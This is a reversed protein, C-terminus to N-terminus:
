IYFFDRVIQLDDRHTLARGTYDLTLAGTTAEIELLHYISIGRKFRM